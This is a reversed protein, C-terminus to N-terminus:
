KNQIKKLENVDNLDSVYGVVLIRGDTARVTVCAVNEESDISIICETKFCNIEKYCNFALNLAKDKTFM